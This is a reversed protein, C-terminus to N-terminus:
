TRAYLRTHAHTHSFLPHAHAHSSRNWTVGRLIRPPRGFAPDDRPVM